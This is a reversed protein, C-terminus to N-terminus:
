PSVVYVKMYSPKTKTLHQLRSRSKVFVDVVYARGNAARKQTVAPGRDQVTFYGNGVSNKLEPIYIKTGFKFDPHCAVTVGEKASGVRSDAVKSGYPPQPYYYTIRATHVRTYTPQQTETSTAVCSVLLAVLVGILLKNM